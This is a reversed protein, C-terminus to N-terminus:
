ADSAVEDDLDQLAAESENYGGNRDKDILEAIISKQLEENSRLAELANPKGNWKVGNYEYTLNNPRKILGRGVGLRFVEEHVNILGKNYDFTFEGTRGKSGGASCDVMKVRIKHGTAESNDVLDSYQENVFERGLLDTRGEKNYNREVLVFYEAFHQAAFASQMKYKKGRRIELPDMEARAHATLVLAIRNKKVIHLIRSLGDQLTMAQDGIQQTDITDANLSRRGRIGSLSDIIIMKLPMGDQIYALIEKEITDFIENPTNTNYTIFRNMDIGWTKATDATLQFGGRMETDFRVVIAEPDTAHLEAAMLYSSLSKGSKAPGWFIATTGLPLGWGKGFIFNLSPSKSRVVHDFYNYSFDVAGPLKQLKEMWKNKAM